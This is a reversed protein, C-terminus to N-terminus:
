LKFSTTQHSQFLSSLHISCDSSIQTLDISVLTPSFPLILTLVAATSRPGCYFPFVDLNDATTVAGSENNDIMYRTAQVCTNLMVRPVQSLSSEGVTTVVM